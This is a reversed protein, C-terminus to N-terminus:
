KQHFVKLGELIAINELVNHATPFKEQEQWIYPCKSLIIFPLVRNNKM